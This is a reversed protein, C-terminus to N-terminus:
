RASGRSRKRPKRFKVFPQPATLDQQTPVRLRAELVAMAALRKAARVKVYGQVSGLGHHGLQTAVLDLDGTVEYLETGGTHRLQHTTWRELGLEAAVRDWVKGVMHTPLRRIPKADHTVFSDHCVFLAPNHDQRVELYDDLAQVAIPPFVLIHERNGKEIVRAVAGGTQRQVDKRNLSLVESVRGATGVLVYFLARDRHALLATRPPRAAFHHLLRDLDETPLPRPLREPRKVQDVFRDLREVLLGREELYKLFGRLATAALGRSAPALERELLHDEWEEVVDHSWHRPQNDLPPRRAALWGVWDSLAWRYSKLTRPSKGKRELQRLYNDVFGNAM